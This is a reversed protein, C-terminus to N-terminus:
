AASTSLIKPVAYGVSIFALTRMSTLSPLRHIPSYTGNSPVTYLKQAIEFLLERSFEVVCIGQQHPSINFKPTFASEFISVNVEIRSGRSVVATRLVM